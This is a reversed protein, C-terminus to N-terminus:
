IYAGAKPKNMILDDGHSLRFCEIKKGMGQRNVGVITQFPRETPYLAAVTLDANIAANFKNVSYGVPQAIWLKIFRQANQVFAIITRAKGRAMQKLASIQVIRYIHVGFPPLRSALSMVACFQSLSLYYFYSGGVLRQSDNGTFESNARPCDSENTITLSPSM